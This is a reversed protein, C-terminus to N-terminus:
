ASPLLAAPIWQFPELSMTIRFEAFALPECYSGALPVPSPGRPFGLVADLGQARVGSDPSLLDECLRRWLRGQRGGLRSWQRAPALPWDAGGLFPKGLVLLHILEGM